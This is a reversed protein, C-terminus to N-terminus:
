LTYKYKKHSEDLKEQVNQLNARSLGSAAQARLPGIKPRGRPQCANLKEQHEDHKDAPQQLAAQVDTAADLKVV